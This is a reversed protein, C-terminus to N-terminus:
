QNQEAKIEEPKKAEAMKEINEKTEEKSAEKEKTAAEKDAYKKRRKELIASFGNLSTKASNM